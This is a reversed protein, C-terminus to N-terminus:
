LVGGAYTAHRLRSQLGPWQVYLKSALKMRDLIRATLSPRHARTISELFICRIGLLRCAIGLPVAMSNGIALVAEPRVQRLLGYAEYVSRTVRWLNALMRGRQKRTPGLYYYMGYRDGPKPMPLTEGAYDLAHYGYVYAIRFRDAPLRDVVRCCENYWGGGSITILLLPKNRNM